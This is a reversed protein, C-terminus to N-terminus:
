GSSKGRTVFISNMNFQSVNSKYLVSSRSYSSSNIKKSVNAVNAVNSTLGNNRTFCMNM